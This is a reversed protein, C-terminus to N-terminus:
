GRRAGVELRIGQQGRWVCNVFHFVHEISSCLPLRYKLAPRLLQLLDHALMTSASVLTAHWM